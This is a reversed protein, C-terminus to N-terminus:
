RLIHGTEVFAYLMSGLSRSATAASKFGDSQLRTKVLDFPATLTAGAFGGV